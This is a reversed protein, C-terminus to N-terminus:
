FLKLGAGRGHREMGQWRDTRWTQLRPRHIHQESWAGSSSRSLIWTFFVIRSPRHSLLSLILFSISVTRSRHVLPRFPGCTTRRRLRFLSQLSIHFALSTRQHGNSNILRLNTGKFFLLDNDDCLSSEVHHLRCALSRFAAASFCSFTALIALKCNRSNIHLKRCSIQM